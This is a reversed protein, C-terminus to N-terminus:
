KCPVKPEGLLLTLGTWSTAWLWEGTYECGLISIRLLEYGLDQMAEGRYGQFCGDGPVRCLGAGIGSTVGISLYARDYINEGLHL